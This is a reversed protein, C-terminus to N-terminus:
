QGARARRLIGGVMTAYHEPTHGELQNRSSAEAAEASWNFGPHRGLNFEILWRLWSWNTGPRRRTMRAIWLLGIRRHHWTQMQTTTAPPVRRSGSSRPKLAGHFRRSKPRIGSLCCIIELGIQLPTAQPERLTALLAGGPGLGASNQRGM